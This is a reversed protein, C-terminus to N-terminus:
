PRGSLYPNHSVAIGDGATGERESCWRQGVFPGEWERDASVKPLRLQPTRM